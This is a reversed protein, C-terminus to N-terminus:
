HEESRASSAAEGSRWSSVGPHGPARAPGARGGELRNTLAARGRWRRALTEVISLGLGTGARGGGAGGPAFREFLKTEEGAVLGPGRTSCRSAARTIMM